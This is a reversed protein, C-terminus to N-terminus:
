RGTRKRTTRRVANALPVLSNVTQPQLNFGPPTPFSGASQVVPSGLSGASTAGFSFYPFGPVFGTPSGFSQFGIKASWGGPVVDQATADKTSLGLAVLLAFLTRAFSM